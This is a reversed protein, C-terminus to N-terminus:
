KRPTTINAESGYLPLVIQDNEGTRLRDIVKTQWQEGTEGIIPVDLSEAMTNLVTLGIRLGTCSGPGKYAGVAELDNFSKGNAELQERLYALLNKALQRDAQWENEYRREGDILTLRCVPTSTDLLLIM